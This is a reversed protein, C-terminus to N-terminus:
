WVATHSPLTAEARVPFKLTAIGGGISAAPLQFSLCGVVHCTGPRGGTCHVQKEVERVIVM